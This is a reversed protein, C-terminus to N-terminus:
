ARLYALLLASRFFYTVHAHASAIACTALTQIGLLLLLPEPNKEKKNRHAGFFFKCEKKERHGKKERENFSQGKAFGKEFRSFTHCCIDPYFM